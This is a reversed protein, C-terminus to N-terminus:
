FICFIMFLLYYFFRVQVNQKKLIQKNIKYFNIITPLVWVQILNPFKKTLMESIEKAKDHNKRISMKRPLSFYMNRFYLPYQRHIRQKQLNISNFCNIVVMDDKETLFSELGEAVDEITADTTEYFRQCPRVENQPFMLWKTNTDGIYVM